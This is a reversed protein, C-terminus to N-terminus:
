DNDIEKFLDTICELNARKINTVPYCLTSRIFEASTGDWERRIKVSNKIKTNLINLNYKDRLFQSRQEYLNSSERSYVRNWFLKPSQGLGQLSHALKAASWILQQDEEIPIYINDIIGSSLLQKISTNDLTGPLDLIINDYKKEKKMAELFTYFKKFNEASRINVMKQLDYASSTTLHKKLTLSASTDKFNNIDRIRVGEAHFNPSDSDIYLVKYNKIYALYSAYLMNFTTKGSGGKESFFTSIM